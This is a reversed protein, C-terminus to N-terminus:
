GAAALIRQALANGSSALIIPTDGAAAGGISGIIQAEVGKRVLAAQLRETAWRVPASAGASDAPDVILRVRSTQALAPLPLLGLIGAAATQKLFARREMDM